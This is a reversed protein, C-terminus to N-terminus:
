KTTSGNSGGINGKLLGDTYAYTYAGSSFQALDYENNHSAIWEMSDGCSAEGVIVKKRNTDIGLIVGTHGPSGQGTLSFIAYLKPTTGTQVSPNRAAINGVVENGNGTPGSAFGQLNTYKNIFYASFSVCNALEGGPCGRGAGGILTSAQPDSVYSQMFAKAQATNLGGAVLGASGCAASSGSSTTGSAGSLISLLQDATGARKTATAKVNGPWEYLYTWAITTGSASPQTKLYDFLTMSPDITQSFDATYASTRINNPKLQKVINLLYNLEGLLFKDNVDQPVGDPVFGKSELVPGSYDSKYYQNFTDAGIANSVFAKADAREGPIHTFQAIGWGGNEWAQGGEQRFPSFGGEEKLSAAIGAAQQPALGADVWFNFIKNANTAGHLTTVSSANSSGTCNASCPNFFLIDNSSYFATDCSAAHSTPAV